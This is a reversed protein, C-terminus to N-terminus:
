QLYKRHQEYWKVLGAVKHINLKKMINSRHAHVTTLEIGLQGGMTRSTMGEYILKIVDWERPTLVHVDFPEAEVREGLFLPMWVPSYYTNGEMVTRVVEALMESDDDKFLLGSAGAVTIARIFPETAHSAFAIIRTGPLSQHLQEITDIGRKADAPLNVVVIDPRTQAALRIADVADLARGVVEIEAGCNSVAASGHYVWGPRDVVLVRARHGVATYAPQQATELHVASQASVNAVSLLSETM